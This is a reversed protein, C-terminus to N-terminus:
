IVNRSKGVEIFAAVTRDIDMETHAASIQVRIRAQGKPVVPYSFGIVYIGKALMDDAFDSALKADGLMVPSIPHNDGSIKFGARAMQTRFRKTNDTIRQVFSSDKMLMDFVKSACGVVSPPLSNSFLYPRSRQRLLDYQNEFERGGETTPQALLTNSINIFSEEKTCRIVSLVFLNLVCIALAPKLIDPSLWGIEGTINPSALNADSKASSINAL